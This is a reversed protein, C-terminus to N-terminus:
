CGFGHSAAPLRHLREGSLCLIINDYESLDVEPASYYRGPGEGQGSHQVGSLRAMEATLAPIIVRDDYGHM